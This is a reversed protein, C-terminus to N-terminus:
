VLTGAAYHRSTFHVSGGTRCGLVRILPVTRGPFLVYAGYITTPLTAAICSASCVCLRRLFLSQSSIAIDALLADHAGCLVWKQPGGERDGFATDDYLVVAAARLRRAFGYIFPLGGVRRQSLCAFPSICLPMSLLLISTNTSCCPVPLGAARDIRSAQAGDPQANFRADTWAPPTVGLIRM